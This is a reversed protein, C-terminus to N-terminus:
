SAAPRVDARRGVARARGWGSLGGVLTRWVAAVAARVARGQLARGRALAAAAAADGTLAYPAAAVVPQAPARPSTQVPATM